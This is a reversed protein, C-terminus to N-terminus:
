KFTPLIVQHCQIIDFEIQINKSEETESYYELKENQQPAATAAAFRLPFFSFISKLNPDKSKEKKDPSLFQFSRSSHRRQKFQENRWILLLSSLSAGRSELEESM